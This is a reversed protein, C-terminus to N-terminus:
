ESPLLVNEGAEMELLASRVAAMAVAGEKTLRVQRAAENSREALHVSDALLAMRTEILPGLKNLRRLQEPNDAILIRLERFEAPIDGMAARYPGLQNADGTLIFGRRANEAELVSLRLATLEAVVRHTHAM